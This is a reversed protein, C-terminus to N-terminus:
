GAADPFRICHNMQIIHKLQANTNTYLWGNFKQDVVCDSADLMKESRFYRGM